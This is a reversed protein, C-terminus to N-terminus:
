RTMFDGDDLEEELSRTNGKEGEYLKLTAVNFKSQMKEGKDNFWYCTATDGQLADLYMVPGGTKAQVRKGVKFVTEAM